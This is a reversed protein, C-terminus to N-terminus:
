NWQVTNSLFIDSVKAVCANDDQRVFHASTPGSLRRHKQHQQGPGLRPALRMGVRVYCAQFSRDRDIRAHADAVAATTERNPKRLRGNASASVKNWEAHLFFTVTMKPAATLPMHATILTPGACRPSSPGQSSSWLNWGHKIRQLHPRVHVRHCWGLFSWLAVPARGYRVSATYKSSCGTLSLDTRSPLRSPIACQMRITTSPDVLEHERESVRSQGCECDVASELTTTM